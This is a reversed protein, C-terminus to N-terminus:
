KVTPVIGTDGFSITQSTSPNWVSSAVTGDPPFPVQQVQPTVPPRPMIIPEPNRQAALFNAVPAPTTPLPTPPALQQVHQEVAETLLALPTDGQATWYKDLAGLLSLLFAGGTIYILAQWNIQGNNLLYQAGAMVGASLATYFWLKLLKLFAREAPTLNLGQAAKSFLSM